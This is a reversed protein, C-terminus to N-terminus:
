VGEMNTKKAEHIWLQNAAGNLAAAADALLFSAEWQEKTVAYERLELVIRRLENASSLLREVSDIMSDM